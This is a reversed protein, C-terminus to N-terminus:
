RLLVPIANPSTVYIDSLVAFNRDYTNCYYEVLLDLIEKLLNTNTNKSNLFVGSFSESDIGALEEVDTTEKPVILPLCASLYQKGQIYSSIQNIFSNYQIIKLLEPKISRNSSHYLCETEHYDGSDSINVDILNDLLVVPSGQNLLDQNLDISQTDEIIGRLRID